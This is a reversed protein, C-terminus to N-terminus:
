SNRMRGIRAEYKKWRMKSPECARIIDSFTNSYVVTCRIVHIMKVGDIERKMGFIKRLV